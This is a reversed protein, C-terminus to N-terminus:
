NGTINGSGETAMRSTLIDGEGETRAISPTNVLWFGGRM